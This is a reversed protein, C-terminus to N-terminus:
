VLGECFNLCRHIDVPFIEGCELTSKRSFFDVAARINSHIDVNYAVMSHINLKDNGDITFNPPESKTTAEQMEVQGVLSM